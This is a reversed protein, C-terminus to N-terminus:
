GKDRSLPSNALIETLAKRVSSEKDLSLSQSASSNSWLLHGTKIDVLGVHLVAVGGPNVGVGGIMALVALAKKGDSTVIDEGYVFMAIDTNTEDGVFNLGQGLTYDFKERGKWAPGMNQIREAAGAVRQYLGVHEDLLIQTDEDRAEYKLVEISGMDQLLTQLESMVLKSALDSREPLKELSGIGSEKVEVKIPIIVVKDLDAVSSNTLSTDNQTNISHTACGSLLLV